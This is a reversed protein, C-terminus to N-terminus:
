KTGDSLAGTSQFGGKRTDDKVKIGPARMVLAMVGQAIREGPIFSWPQDGLNILLVKIEQPKLYDFDITGPSNLVTIGNKYAWGSRPRIQLEPLIEYTKGKNVKEVLEFEEKGSVAFLGTSVLLRKMPQIEGAENACIDFGASYPTAYFVEGTGAHVFKMM